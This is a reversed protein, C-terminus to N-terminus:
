DKTAPNNEQGLVLNLREIALQTIDVANSSIFVSRRELVVAAGAERMLQELVPAAANLFVVRRSELGANLDRSKADQRRRTEQVKTDFADALVRFAAPDMTPRLETLQKEEITLEEEIRRNEAALGAGIREIEEVTQRGFNSDEFLRDSDITLVPSEVPARLGAQGATQAAVPAGAWLLAAALCSAIRLGGRM